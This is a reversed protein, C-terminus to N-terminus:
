MTQYIPYKGGKGRGPHCKDGRMEMVMNNIMSYRTTVQKNNHVKPLELLHALHVLVITPQFLASESWVPSLTQSSM